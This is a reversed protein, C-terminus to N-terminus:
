EMYWKLISKTTHGFVLSLMTKLCLFENKKVALISILLQPFPEHERLARPFGPVRNQQDMREADM